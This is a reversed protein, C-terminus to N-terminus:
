PRLLQKRMSYVRSRSWRPCKERVYAAIQKLQDKFRMVTFHATRMPLMPIGQAQLDSSWQCTSPVVGDGTEVLQGVVCLMQVSQPIKISARQRLKARRTERTLSQVFKEQQDSLKVTGAIPCGENPCCIQIVKTVGSNPYDEVFQRAVIGGASHGVLIIQRYGARKLHTIGLRLSPTGAIADVPVHQGYAFAYVDAQKAFVRVAKSDPQQWGQFIAQSVQDPRDWIRFGHILVVAHTQGLSRKSKSLRQSTPTVQVFQTKIEPAHITTTTLLLVTATLM